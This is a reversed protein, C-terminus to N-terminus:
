RRRCRHREVFDRRQTELRRRHGEPDRRLSEPNEQPYLKASIKQSKMVLKFDACLDADRSVLVSARSVLAVELVHRDNSVLGLRNASQELRIRADKLETPGALVVSSRSHLMSVFRGFKESKKLEASFKGKGAMCLIGGGNKLWGALLRDHKCEGALLSMSDADVILKTCM